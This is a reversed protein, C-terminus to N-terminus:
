LTLIALSRIVDAVDECKDSAGEIDDIFDKIMICITPSQASCKSMFIRFTKVRIDDIEEEIREVRDSLELSKQPNDSLSIVADKLLKCAELIRHAITKCNELIEQPILNRPILMLKRAAAKLYAAIDDSTLVLRMLEERDVPHFMGKSLEAIIQRKVNDAENETKMIEDHLKKSNELDGGLYNEMLNSFLESVAIIKSLHEICMAIIKRERRRGIWSLTQAM